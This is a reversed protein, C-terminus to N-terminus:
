GWELQPNWSSRSFLCVSERDGGDIKSVGEPPLRLRLEPPAQAEAQGQSIAVQRAHHVLADLAVIMRSVIEDIKTQLVVEEYTLPAVEHLRLDQLRQLEREEDSSLTGDVYKLSREDFRAEHDSNWM